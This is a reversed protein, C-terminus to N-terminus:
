QSVHHSFYSAILSSHLIMISSSYDFFPQFMVNWGKIKMMRQPILFRKCGKIKMMRQPILFRKWGMYNM